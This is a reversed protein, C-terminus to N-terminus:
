LLLSTNPSAAVSAEEAQITREMEWIEWISTTELESIGSRAQGWDSPDRVERLDTTTGPPETHLKRDEHTYRLDSLLALHLWRAKCLHRRKRSRILPMQSRCILTKHTLIHQDSRSSKPRRSQAPRNSLLQQHLYRLPSQESQRHQDHPRGPKNWRWPQREQCHAVELENQQKGEIMMAIVELTPTHVVMWVSPPGSGCKGGKEMM